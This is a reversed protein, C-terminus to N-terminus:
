ALVLVFPTLSHCVLICDWGDRLLCDLADKKKERERERKGGLSWSGAVPDFRHNTLWKKGHCARLCACCSLFVTLPETHLLSQVVEFKEMDLWHILSSWSVLGDDRSSDLSYCGDMQAATQQHQIRTLDDKDVIAHTILFLLSPSIEINSQSFFIFDCSKKIEM